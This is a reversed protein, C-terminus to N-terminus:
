VPCIKTVIGSTAGSPLQARTRASCLGNTRQTQYPPAIMPIPTIKFMKRFDRVFTDADCGSVVAGSTTIERGLGACSSTRWRDFRHCVNRFVTQGPLFSTHFLHRFGFGRGAADATPLNCQQDTNETQDNKEVFPEPSIRGIDGRNEDPRRRRRDGSRIEVLRLLNREGLKPSLDDNKVKPSRPALLALQLM